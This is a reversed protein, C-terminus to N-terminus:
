TSLCPRAAHSASRVSAPCAWRVPSWSRVAVARCGHAHVGALPPYASMGGSAGRPISFRIRTASSLGLEAICGGQWNCSCHGTARGPPLLPQLRLVGTQRGLQALGPLHAPHLPFQGREQRLEASSRVCARSRARLLSRRRPGPASGTPPALAAPLRDAPGPGAVVPGMGLRGTDRPGSAPLPWWFRSCGLASVSASRSAMSSTSCESRNTSWAGSATMRRQQRPVYLEIGVIARSAAGALRGRRDPGAGARWGGPAHRASCTAVRALRTQLQSM